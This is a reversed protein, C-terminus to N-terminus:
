NEPERPLMATFCTGGQRTSSVRMSGGHSRVVEHAIFLGLGLGKKASSPAKRKFPNFIGPLADQSIEPGFNHVSLEVTDASGAVCVTVASAPDGHLVANSVLNAIAQALRDSDWQGDLDGHRVLDIKRSPHGLEIEDIVRTAITGVNAIRRTCPMARGAGLRAYDLLQEVMGSVREASALVRNAVRSQREELRASRILFATGVQIATLPDRLDHGLTAILLERFSEPEKRVTADQVTGFAHALRGGEHVSRGRVELWRIAGDRAVVRAEL